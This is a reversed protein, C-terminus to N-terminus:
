PAAVPTPSTARLAAGQLATIRQIVFMALVAAALNLAETVALLPMSTGGEFQSAMAIVTHGAWAAWWVNVLVEDRGKEATGPGSARHVELVLWRPVWLNVVPILWAVVAWMGPQSATGPSLVRANRRCRSFWVLFVVAAATMLNVFVMSRFGFENLSANTPHLEHARLALARFVDAVAAAAIAVQAFRALLWPANM